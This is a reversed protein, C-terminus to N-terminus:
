MKIHIPLTIHKDKFSELNEGEYTILPSIECLEVEPNGEIIAGVQQLYKAHLVSLDRRCTMPSDSGTGNKLPSFESERDVQYIVVSNAFQVIDFNFLELKVGLQKKKEGTNIDISDIDKKAVHYLKYTELIEACKSLFPLTYFFNVINGANFALQSSTPDIREAMEKTIESYEVVHYKGNKIAFVGVKEHPDRKPVVKTGFDCNKEACYGIFKPDGIKVLINDVCYSHIYKVGRNEMDKLMGYKSLALYVGGNGNPATALSDKEELLLKGNIDFCPLAGQEFFLVQDEKLGFFSNDKFFNITENHTFSSTMIYWPICCDVKNFKTCAIEQLRIIREAQIQFLSKKSPLSVDYMGKPLDSGLRTGQGGALLLIALEGKSIIELGKTKYNEEEELTRKYSIVDISPPEILLHDSTSTSLTLSENFMASLQEPLPFQSLQEFIQNSEGFAFVHGQGNEIYKQKLLDKSVESTTSTASM